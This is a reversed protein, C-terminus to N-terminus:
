SQNCYSVSWEDRIKVRMLLFKYNRRSDSTLTVDDACMTAACCIESVMGGILLEILRDPLPNSYVKYLDMSLVRDQRVGQRIEFSESIQDCWHIM